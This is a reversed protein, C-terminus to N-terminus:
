SCVWANCGQKYTARWKQGETHVCYCLLFGLKSSPDTQVKWLCIWVNCGEAAHPLIQASLNCRVKSEWHPCFLLFGLKSSPIRKCKEYVFECMADRPQMHYYRHQYTADCKQDEAEIICSQFASQRGIHRQPHCQHFKARVFLLIMNNVGPELCVHISPKINM